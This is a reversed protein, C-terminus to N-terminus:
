ASPILPVLLYSQRDGGTHVTVPLYYRRGTNIVHAATLVDNPGVMVGSGNSGTGDPFTVSISVIASYPYAGSQPVNVLSTM